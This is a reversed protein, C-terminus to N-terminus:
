PSVLDTWVMESKGAESPSVSEGCCQTQDLGRQAFLERLHVNLFGMGAESICIALESSDDLGTAVVVGCLSRGFRRCEPVGEIIMGGVGEDDFFRQGVSVDQEAFEELRFCRSPAFFARDGSEFRARAHPMVLDVFGDRGEVLGDVLLVIKPGLGLADGRVQEQLFPSPELSRRVVHNSRDPLVHHALDLGFSPRERHQLGHPRVDSGNISRATQASETAFVM